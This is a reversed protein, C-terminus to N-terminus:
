KLYFRHIKTMILVSGVAYSDDHCCCSTDNHKKQLTCKQQWTKFFVAKINRSNDEMSHQATKTSGGVVDVSKICFGSYRKFPFFINWLSFRWEEKSQFAKWILLL